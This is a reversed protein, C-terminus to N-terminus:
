EPWFCCTMRHLGLYIPETCMVALLGIRMILWEPYDCAEGRYAHREIPPFHSAHLFKRFSKRTLRVCTPSIKSPSLTTAM